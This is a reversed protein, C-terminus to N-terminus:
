GAGEGVNDKVAFGEIKVTSDRVTQGQWNHWGYLSMLYWICRQVHLPGRGSRLKTTPSIGLHCCKMTLLHSVTWGRKKIRVM